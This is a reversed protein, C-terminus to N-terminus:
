EAALGQIEEASLARNYLRVDRLRGNFYDGPGGGILLPQETSLNFDAPQFIASEAVQEGGVYLRLRDAVRVATVHRWGPPLEHDYTM